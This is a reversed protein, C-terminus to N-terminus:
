FRFDKDLKRLDREAKALKGGEDHLRISHGSPCRVSRGRIIDQVGVCLSRSCEPCDIAIQQSSM